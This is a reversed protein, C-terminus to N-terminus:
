FAKAKQDSSKRYAKDEWGKQGSHFFKFHTQLGYRAGLWVATGGAGCLVDWTFFNDWM